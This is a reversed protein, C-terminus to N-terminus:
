LRQDAGSGNRRGARLARRREAGRGRARRGATETGASPGDGKHTRTGCALRGRGLGEPSGTGREAGPAGQHRAGRPAWSGQAGRIREPEENDCGKEEHREREEGVGEGKLGRTEAGEGRGGSRGARRRQNEGHATSCKKLQNKVSGLTQQKKIKM